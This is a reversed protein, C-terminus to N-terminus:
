KLHPSSAAEPHKRLAEQYVEKSTSADKAFDLGALASDDVPGFDIHWDNLWSPSIWIAANWYLRGKLYERAQPQLELKSNTLASYCMKAEDIPQYPQRLFGWYWGAAITAFSGLGVGLILIFLSNNKILM